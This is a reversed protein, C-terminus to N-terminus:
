LLSKLTEKIALLDLWDMRFSILGSHENSPCINFSLSGISQGGSTFFQSMQFSWSALFSQLHSSFPIVCIFHNSSMVSEISMLKFLNQSNTVSLLGPMSCDMPDCLIVSQCSQAISSLQITSVLVVNDLM